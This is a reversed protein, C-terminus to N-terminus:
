QYKFIITKEQGSPPIYGYQGSSIDKNGFPLNIHLEGDRYEIHCLLILSAIIGLVSTYCILSNILPRARNYKNLTQSPMLTYVKKTEEYRFVTKGGRTDAMGVLLVKDGPLLLRQTYRKWEKQYRKNIPLCLLNLREPTVDLIGTEDQISFVNCKNESHVTTYSTRGESDHDIEEIEYEYAICETDGIPAILKEGMVVIGEVEALGMAVSRIPSTPLIAQLRMFHRDDGPNKLVFFPLIIFGLLFILPLSVGVILMIVLMGIIGFLYVGTVKGATFVTVKKGAKQYEAKVNKLRRVLPMIILGVIALVFTLVFLIVFACMGFGPKIIGLFCVLTPELVFLLWKPKYDWGYIERLTLSHFLTVLASFPILAFVVGLGIDGWDTLFGILEKLNDIFEKM